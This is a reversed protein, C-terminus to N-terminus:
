LLALFNRVAPATEGARHIVLLDAFAQEDAIEAFSLGAIAHRIGAFVVAVGLSAATLTLITSIEHAEMSIRPAFGARTCLEIVKDHLGAGTHRSPIIFPENRLAAFHIRKRGALPHAAPLAVLLRERLARHVVLQRPLLESAAPRAFGIDLRRDCLAELQAVTTMQRLMVSVQPWKRRFRAFLRPISPNFPASGTFGIEIRGAAGRAIQTARRKAEETLTLITRADELLARGAPTLAVRRSTREFLKAQLEQEIARIQLSLPPQAIHLREAARGFHLEEAVAVFYRLHRLEM